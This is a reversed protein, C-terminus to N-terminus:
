NHCGRSYEDFDECDGQSAEGRNDEALLFEDILHKDMDKETVGNLAYEEYEAKLVDDVKAIDTDMDEETISANM